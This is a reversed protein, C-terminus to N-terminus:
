AVEQFELVLRAAIANSRQIEDLGWATREAHGPVITFTPAPETPPQTPTMTENMGHQVANRVYM